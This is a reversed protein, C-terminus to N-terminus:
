QKILNNRVQVPIGWSKPRLETKINARPINQVTCRVTRQVTTCRSLKSRNDPGSVSSDVYCYFFIILFELQKRM